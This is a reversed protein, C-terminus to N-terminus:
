FGLELKKIPNCVENNYYKVVYTIGNYYVHINMMSFSISIRVSPFKDIFATAPRAGSVRLIGNQPHWTILTHGQLCQTM